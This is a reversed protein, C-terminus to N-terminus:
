EPLNDPDIGQSKLYASLREARLSEQEARLREQEARQSEQELREVAWPLLNGEKDWWRLWYGTRGEKTGQWTGLFLGMSDIWNRGNEDPQKLEYRGNELQHFEVLGGDPDFIIYVPVQLIQEYFYWKGPPFTKKSSYEKGDIDSLFEM